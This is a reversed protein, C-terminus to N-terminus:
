YQSYIVYLTDIFKQGSERYGKVTPDWLATIPKAQLGWLVACIFSTIITFCMLTKTAIIFYKHTRKIINLLFCCISLKISCKAFIAVIVALQAFKQAQVLQDFSLFESHRGFGNVAATVDFADATM